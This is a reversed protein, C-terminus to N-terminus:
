EISNFVQVGRGRNFDTPKIMWFNRGDFMTEKLAYSLCTRPGKSAWAAIEKNVQRLDTSTKHRELINFYAQFREIEALASQKQSLDLTFTVPHFDFLSRKQSECHRSLNHFLNDKETFEAHHEFHNVLKKQGHSSLYDFRIGKSLPVWKFNYLTKTCEIETWDGGRDDLCRKVLESNNGRIVM